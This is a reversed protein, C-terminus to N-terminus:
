VIWDAQVTKGTEPGLITEISLSELQSSAEVVLGAVLRIELLNLEEVQEHNFGWWLLLVLSCNASINPWSEFVKVVLCVGLKLELPVLAWMKLM